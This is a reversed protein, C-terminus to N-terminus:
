LDICCILFPCSTGHGTLYGTHRVQVTMVTGPLRDHWGRVVGQLLDRGPTGSVWIHCSALPTTVSEEMKRQRCSPQMVFSRWLSIIADQLAWSANMEHTSLRRAHSASMKSYPTKRQGSILLTLSTVLRDKGGGLHYDQSQRSAEASPVAKTDPNPM